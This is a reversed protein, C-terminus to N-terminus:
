STTETEGTGRCGVAPGTTFLDSVDSLVVTDRTRSGDAALSYSLPLAPAALGSLTSGRNLNRWNGPERVDQRHHLNTWAFREAEWRHSPERSRRNGTMWPRVTTFSVSVESAVGYTAPEFGTPDLVPPGYSLPYLLTFSPGSHEGVPKPHSPTSKSNTLKATTFVAHADPSRRAALRSPRLNSDQRDFPQLETIGPHPFV